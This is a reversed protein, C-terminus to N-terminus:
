PRRNNRVRSIAVQIHLNPSSKGDLPWVLQQGGLVPGLQYIKFWVAGSGDWNAATKGPPVRALYM